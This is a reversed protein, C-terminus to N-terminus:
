IGLKLGIDFALYSVTRELQDAGGRPFEATHSRYRVAPTLSLTPAFPFALGAGVEYGLENDSEGEVMVGGSEFVTTTRNYLIGAFAFPSVGTVASLPLSIQGGLNLGSDVADFEEAGEVGFSYRDWGGYVSILPLLQLRLNLGYGFGTEVNDADNWDGQPLALGARGEVAIPIIGQADARAVVATALLAILLSAKRVIRMMRDGGNRTTEGIVVIRGGTGAVVAGSSRLPLPRTGGPLASADPDAAAM